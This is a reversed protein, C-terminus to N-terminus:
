RIFTRPFSRIGSRPPARSTAFWTDKTSATSIAATAPRGTRKRINLPNKSTGSSPQNARRISAIGTDLRSLWSSFSAASPCATSAAREPSVTHMKAPAIVPATM